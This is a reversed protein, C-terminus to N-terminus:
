IPPESSWVSVAAKDVLITIQIMRYACLDLRSRAEYRAHKTPMGNDTKSTVTAL